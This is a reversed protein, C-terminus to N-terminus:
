DSAKFNYVPKIQEIIEVTDQINAKIEDAPKYAMPSEDITAPCVSTTYIGSMQRKYEEMDLQTKAQSRSLIRGAGHPASFNWDPNGKGICILSGDRMNMPILVTEGKKASIAGKRLMKNDEIYNHVTHFAPMSADPTLNAYKVITEAIKNRNATAFAQVLQMDHIYDDFMEGELYCLDDPISSEASKLSRLVTEIENQRGEAKLKEIVSKTDVNSRKKCADIARKQYYEATEKGLHRSGTHIVLWFCGHSDKDIEIFHNGGGLTGLSRRARSTDVPAYINDVLFYPCEKDHIAMGAPVHERIVTDINKLDIDTDKLKVTLMGCGIDVGVLNPVVKGNLTMTTGITCGAGAHCDPMIKISLDKVFPQNLLNVIQSITANDCNDTFVTASNYKGNLEFM